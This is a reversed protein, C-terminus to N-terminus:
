KISGVLLFKTKSLLNQFIDIIELEKDQLRLM